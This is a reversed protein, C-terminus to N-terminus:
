ALVPPSRAAPVADTVGFEREWEYSQALAPRPRQVSGPASAGLIAVVLVLLQHSAIGTHNADCPGHSKPRAGLITDGIVWFPRPRAGLAPIIRRSSPSSTRVSDNLAREDNLAPPQALAAGLERLDGRALLCRLFTVLIFLLLIMLFFILPLFLLVVM